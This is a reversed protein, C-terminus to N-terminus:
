SRCTAYDRCWLRGNRLFVPGHALVSEGCCPLTVSMVRSGGASACMRIIGRRRFGWKRRMKAPARVLATIIYAASDSGVRRESRERLCRHQVQDNIISWTDPVAANYERAFARNGTRPAGFTYCSVTAKDAPCAGHIEFAALTAMAGGLSHGAHTCLM